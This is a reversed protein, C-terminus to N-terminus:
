FGLSVPTWHGAVPHGSVPAQHYFARHRTVPLGNGIVLPQIVLSQHTIVLSQHRFDSSQHRTSQYGTVPSNKDPSQNVPSQSGPSQNVPSQSGPAQNVQAQNIQAQNVPAQHGTSLSEQTGIAGLFVGSPHTRGRATYGQPTTDVDVSNDDSLDSVVIQKKQKNPRKKTMVSKRGSSTRRKDALIWTDESLKNCTSSTSLRFCFSCSLCNLYKDWQAKIHGCNGHVIKM